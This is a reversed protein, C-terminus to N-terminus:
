IVKLTFVTNSAAAGSLQFIKCLRCTTSTVYMILTGSWFQFTFNRVTVKFKYSELAFFNSHRIGTFSYVRGTSKQLRINSKQLQGFINTRIMSFSSTPFISKFFSKSGRKSCKCFHLNIVLVTYKDNPIVGAM